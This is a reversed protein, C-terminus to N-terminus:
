EARAAEEYIGKVIANRHDGFWGRSMLIDGNRVSEVLTARKEEIPGDAINVLSFADPYLDRVHRPTGYGKMDLEM